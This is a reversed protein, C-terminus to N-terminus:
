TYLRLRTTIPQRCLPCNVLNVACTRCTQHGCGFAMDKTRTLCVPCSQSESEASLNDPASERSLGSGSTGFSTMSSNDLPFGSGSPGSGTLYPFSQVSSGFQTTGGPPPYVVGKQGKHLKRNLIKFEITARYQLPIEMLAALAFAAEKQPAPLNKSMIATFNVFQFNDFTRRPIKDDFEKMADWPGDGIGVLVISLAYQSADVIADITEQEQPSLKGFGTDVSRTVQGDAIILLVHYQGGSQEVIDIAVRVIPAFSTPGSLRVHPTIEKYRSLVAEFGNCPLGNPNFSFVAQDRTSVDGFGFCPILNDDDFPSLTKGVIQIAQEYPNQFSDSLAHLSQRNFSHQGTWENSKTYDIGVILNSTELGAARLAEIVQEVSNFDDGIVAYKKRSADSVPNSAPSSRVSSFRKPLMKSFLKGM